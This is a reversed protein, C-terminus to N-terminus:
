SNILNEVEKKFADFDVEPVHYQYAEAKAIATALNFHSQHDFPFIGEHDMHKALYEQETQGPTPVLFAKKGMKLLDMITTYGSRCIVLSSAAMLRALTPADVHNLERPEGQEASTPLGRVLVYNDGQDKLQVRLLKEFHTRAPEPGSILILLKRDPIGSEKQLRSLPGIYRTNPPLVAPHSLEGALGLRAEVDPVWCRNFSGIFRYHIMRLLRDPLPGWGSRPSLQHTMFISHVDKHFFGYRNDSIIFDFQHKQHEMSVWAQEAQIVKYLRPLQRIIFLPMNIGNKPYKISYSPSDLFEIDPFIEQLVKKQPGSAAIFIQCQLQLLYNILPVSRTAHGLGWDLIGLLIKKPM